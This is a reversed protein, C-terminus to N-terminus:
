RKLRQNKAILEEILEIIISLNTSPSSELLEMSAKVGHSDLLERARGDASVRRPILTDNYDTGKRYGPIYDRLLALVEKCTLKHDVRRFHLLSWLEFCPNSVAVVIGNEEALSIAKLLNARENGEVDFACIALDGAEPHIDNMRLQKVTLRVLNLADTPSSAPTRIEVDCGRRRLGRFYVEETKGEAIVLVVSRPKRGSTRRRQVM